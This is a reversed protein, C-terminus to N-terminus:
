GRPRQQQGHLRIEIDPDNSSSSLLLIDNLHHDSLLSRLRSKMYKMKSFLQECCYSGGFMAVIRQVHAIYKPFNRRVRYHVDVEDVLAQFQRHKLSRPLISNAVKM